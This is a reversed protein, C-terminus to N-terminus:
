KFLFHLRLDTIVVATTAIFIGLLSLTNARRSAIESQKAFIANTYSAMLRQITQKQSEIVSMESVISQKEAMGVNTILAKQAEINLFAYDRHLQFINHLVQFTQLSKKDRFLHAWSFHETYTKELEVEVFTVLVSGKDLIKDNNRTPTNSGSKKM